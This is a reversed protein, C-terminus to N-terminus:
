CSENALAAALTYTLGGIASCLTLLVRPLTTM